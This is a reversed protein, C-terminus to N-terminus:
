DLEARRKLEELEMRLQNNRRRLRENEARLKPLLGDEYFSVRETLLEIRMTANDM